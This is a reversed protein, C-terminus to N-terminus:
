KKYKQQSRLLRLNATRREGDQMLSVIRLAEMVPIYFNDSNSYFADIHLAIIKLNYGIEEALYEDAIDYYREIYYPEIWNDDHLFQKKVEAKHHAKLKAVAGYAGNIFAIKEEYTYENWFDAPTSASQSFLISFLFFLFYNNM